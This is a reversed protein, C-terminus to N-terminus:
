VLWDLVDFQTLICTSLKNPHELTDIVQNSLVYAVIEGKGTSGWVTCTLCTQYSEWALFRGSADFHADRGTYLANPHEPTNIMWRSSGPLYKIPRVRLRDCKSAHM